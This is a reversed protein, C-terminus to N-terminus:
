RTRRHILRVAGVLAGALALLAAVSVGSAVLVVTHLQTATTDDFGLEPGFDVPASVLCASPSIGIREAVAQDTLGHYEKAVDLTAILSRWHIHASM